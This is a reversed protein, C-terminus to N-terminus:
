PVILTFTVDRPAGLAGISIMQEVLVAQTERSMLRVQLGFTPSRAIELLEFMGQGAECPFGFIAGNVRLTQVTMGITDFGAPCPEGASNELTWHATVPTEIECRSSCGDGPKTNGDDCTERFVDISRDGCGEIIHPGDDNDLLCGTALVCVMVALFRIM